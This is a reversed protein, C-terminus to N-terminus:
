QAVEYRAKIGLKEARANADDALAKAEEETLPQGKTGPVMSHVTAGSTTVVRIM